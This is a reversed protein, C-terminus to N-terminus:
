DLPPTVRTITGGPLWGTQGEHGAHGFEVPLFSITSAAYLHTRGTVSVGKAALWERYGAATAPEGAFQDRLASVYELPDPDRPDYRLAVVAGPGHALL